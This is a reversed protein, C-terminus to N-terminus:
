KLPGIQAYSGGDHVPYGVANRASRRWLVAHTAHHAHPCTPGQADVVDAIEGSWTEYSGILCGCPLVGGRLLAHLGPTWGLLTRLREHRFTLSNLFSHPM